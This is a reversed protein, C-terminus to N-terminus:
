PRDDMRAFLYELDNQMEASTMGFLFQDVVTGTDDVISTTGTHTVKVTGDGWQSVSSSANFAKEVERLAAYDDTRLGRAQDRFFGTIYADLLPGTDRDPDVTVMAVTLKEADDGIGGLAVKLATMTAPCIDPCNTYGFYVALLEGDPAVFSFPRKTAADPLTQDGVYLPPTIQFGKLEAPADDGGGCGVLLAAAVLV